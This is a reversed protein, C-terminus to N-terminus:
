VTILHSTVFLGLADGLKTAVVWKRKARKHKQFAARQSTVSPSQCGEWTPSLARVKNKDGELKCKTATSHSISMTHCRKLSLPWKM